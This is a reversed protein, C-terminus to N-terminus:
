GTLDALTRSFYRRYLTLEAAGMAPALAGVHGPMVQPPVYPSTPLLRLEAELREVLRAVIGPPLTSDVVVLGSEMVMTTNYVLRALARASDSLWKAV